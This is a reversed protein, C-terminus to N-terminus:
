QQVYFKYNPSLMKMPSGRCKPRKHEVVVMKGTKCVPCALPKRGYITEFLEQWSMAKMSVPPEAGLFKRACALAATKNRSSLIGYHRIKMFGSPLIHLSFRHLFEDTSLNMTDAKSTRYDFWSFHVRDNDVAKIRHNSIAIRHSYRGIYNVVQEPNHMPQKAFVVWKKKYFPHLYKKDPDFKPELNIEEKKDLDILGDTFKGRFVKSLAKVPFLFKGQQATNRWKGNKTIGGAPILCHIHPHLAMNQGWSHLICTMGMKAGLHKHDLGFQKITEWATAFLLGDLKASHKIFLPNLSDPVTFVVHYYKVPLLDEERMRVWKERKLGNCKPCHRDRCSNYSIHTHGCKSNDCKDKHYGLKKTRCQSLNTFVRKQHASLKTKEELSNRYKKIIDAVEFQPKTYSM